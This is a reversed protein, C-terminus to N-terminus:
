PREIPWFDHWKAGAPLSKTASFELHLVRRHRPTGERSKGSAHVLLPRMALVDGRRCHIAREPFGAIRLAKGTQHSGALVQLPGNEETVDDFHIRLTLMQELVETPPETHPIGARLRPRSYGPRFECDDVAILQDKHWPLAWSQAPPKDFYLARVLGAERGLVETVFHSLVPTRWCEIVAPCLTLVNRAAYVEGDRHRVADDDPTALPATAEELRALESRSCPQTLLVCGQENFERIPLTQPSDIDVTREGGHDTM